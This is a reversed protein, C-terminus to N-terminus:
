NDIQNSKGRTFPNVDHVPAVAGRIVHGDTIVRVRAIM